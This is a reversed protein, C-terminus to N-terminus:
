RVAYIRPLQGPQGCRKTVALCVDPGMAKMRARVEESKSRDPIAFVMTPRVDPKQAVDRQRHNLDPRPRYLQSIAFLSIM